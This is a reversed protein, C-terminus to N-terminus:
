WVVHCAIANSLQLCTHVCLLLQPGRVQHIFMTLYILVRDAGGKVEFSKFMVNARFFVVAEDVIDM